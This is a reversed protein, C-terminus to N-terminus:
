GLAILVYKNRDCVSWTRIIMLLAAAFFTVMSSGNTFKVIKACQEYTANWYELYLINVALSAIIWYRNIFYVITLPTIRSKWIM